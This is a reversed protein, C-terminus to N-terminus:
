LYEDLRPKLIGQLKSRTFYFIFFFLFSLEVVKSEFWVVQILWARSEMEMYTIQTSGKIRSQWWRVEM